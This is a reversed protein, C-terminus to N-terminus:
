SLVEQLLCRYFRDRITAPRELGMRKLCDSTGADQRNRRWGRLALWALAKKSGAHNALEQLAVALREETKDFASGLPFPALRHDHDVEKLTRRLQEPTNRRLEDPVRYSDPLKGASKAADVLEDQFRADTVALMRRITEADEQDRLDAIGYETVVIDRLHRPITVHGYNWRINSRTRGHSTRTAPLTIISRASKLAFAMAVFNYQGGVGSIVRGDELGDSVVAGLATVMLASNVFRGGTRARRKSEEHGYLQNTFSIPMMAIRDRLTPSLDALKRYFLPSGVFFGAHLAVGNVERKIIGAELLDLFGEVLMESTAYLGESFREPESEPQSRPGLADLMRRYLANDRHRLLLASIVADGISGIGVQLTGGDPILSAVRLGIAHDAPSVPEHPLHFLRFNAKEGKLLLDFDEVSREADGGMFPLEANVQGVSLFEIQGAKRAQLLDVSIDPNCSLSYGAQGSREPPAIQQALVNFGSRLLTDLVHTYNVSLYHQQAAHNGLWKGPALFFEQVQINDPLTGDRLGRAYLLEPYGSFFTQQLPELFRRELESGPTPLELSLATLITLSVTADARAKEVLANVVHNAKGLGVPLALVIRKGVRAIIAEVLTAVDTFSAPNELSM